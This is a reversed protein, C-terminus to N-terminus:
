VPVIATALPPGNKAPLSLAFGVPRDRDLFSAEIAFSRTFWTSLEIMPAIRPDAISALARVKGELTSISPVHVFLFADPPVLKAVDLPVPSNADDDASSSRSCSLHSPAALLACAVLLWSAHINRSM